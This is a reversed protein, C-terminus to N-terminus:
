SFSSSLHPPPHRWKYALQIVAEVILWHAKKDRGSGKALKEESETESDLM